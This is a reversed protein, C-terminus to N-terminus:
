SMWRHALFRLASVHVQSKNIDVPGEWAELRGGKVRATWVVDGFTKHELQVVVAMVEDSVSPERVKFEDKRAYVSGIAKTATAVRQMMRRTERGGARGTNVPTATPEDHTVGNVMTAFVIGLAALERRETFTRAIQPLVVTEVYNVCGGRTRFDPQLMIV